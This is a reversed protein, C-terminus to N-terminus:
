WWGKWRAVPVLAEYIGTAVRSLGADDAMVSPPSRSRYHQLWQQRQPRLRAPKNPGFLPNRNVTLATAPHSDAIWDNRRQDWRVIVVARQDSIGHQNKRLRLPRLSGHRRSSQRHLGYRNPLRRLEIRPARKRRHEGPGLMPMSRTPTLNAKAQLRQFDTTARRLKPESRAGPLRVSVDALEAPLGRVVCAARSEHEGPERLRPTGDPAMRPDPAGPRM